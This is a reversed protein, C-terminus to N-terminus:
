RGWCMKTVPDYALGHVRCRAYGPDLTPTPLTTVIPTKPPYDCTKNTLNYRSGPYNNRCYQDYDPTPTPANTIIQTQVPTYVATPAITQTKGQTSIQQICGCFGALIVLLSVSIVCLLCNRNFNNKVHPFYTFIM